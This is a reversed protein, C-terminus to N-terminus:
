YKIDRKRNLINYASAILSSYRWSEIESNHIIQEGNVTTMRTDKFYIRQGLRDYFVLLPYHTRYTPYMNQQQFTPLWKTLFLRSSNDFFLMRLADFQFPSRFNDINFILNLDIGMFEMKILKSKNKQLFNYITHGITEKVLSKRGEGKIREYARALGSTFFHEFAREEELNPNMSFSGWSPHIHRSVLNYKRSKVEFYELDQVESFKEYDDKPFAKPDIRSLQNKTFNIYIRLVQIKPPLHCFSKFLLIPEDADITLVVLRSMIPLTNFLLGTSLPLNDSSFYSKRFYVSLIPIAAAVNKKNKDLYQLTNLAHSETNSFIRQDDKIHVIKTSYILYAFRQYLQKCCTVLPVISHNSRYMFFVIIKFVEPPLDLITVTQEDSSIHNKSTFKAAQRYRLLSNVLIKQFFLAKKNTQLRKNEVKPAKDQEFVDM